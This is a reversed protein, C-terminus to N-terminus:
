EILSIEHNIYEQLEKYEKDLQQQIKKPIKTTSYEKDKLFTDSLSFDKMEILDKDLEGRWYLFDEIVNSGNEEDKDFQLSHFFQIIEGKSGMVNPTTALLKALELKTLKM